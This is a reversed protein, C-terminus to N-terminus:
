RAAEPDASTLEPWYLANLEITARAEALAVAIAAAKAEYSRTIADLILLTDLRGLDALRRADAIQQEALPLLQTDVVARQETAAHLRAEALALQSTARELSGRLLEAASDRAARSEAIERANANWLPIPLSFGLTARPQADEERFGPLLTLEPWQKRIALELQHEAVAHGQRAVAVAPGDALRARRQAADVIRAAVQVSPQLQLPRDPPLGMLQKLELEAAAVAARAQVLDAQRAVRALAFARAETATILQAAALRGAIAELDALRQVLEEVLAQSLRGASWLVWTADLSELVHAEALRAEVLAEAHRSEALARELGRRGTIPLTIGVAGGAIWPHAVNELIREFSGSLEPDDWLGAYEASAAAIGARQRANRLDANFLLAVLRVERLDIGDTLDFPELQADRHHLLEAFARVEAGDPVREAFQRAHQQLDVPAPEYSQCGAVLIAALGVSQRPHM